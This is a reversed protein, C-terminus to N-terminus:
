HARKLLALAYDGVEVASESLVSEGTALEVAWSGPPLRFPMNQAGGNMVLYLTSELGDILVALSRAYGAQWDAETMEAGAPTYWVLERDAPFSLGRLVQHQKRFRALHQVFSVLDWDMTEWDHWSVENDQCYANNNGGQTRGLEDGGLLMPVGRSLFIIALMNRARRRRMTIIQPDTTPGEAGSNWSRNHTEGDHNHEGNAQNHKNNFSVLDAMTFGDHSTIFNISALPGKRQYLDPSGIFRSAANAIVGSTGRWFERFDDRFRGNWEAWGAPFAGTQYGAPGLDWPEAILKVGRLVPDQHMALFFPANPTFDLPARGLSPALDFRFGDVHMEEVWYRLSDMVVQLTWPSTLDVTNGTGTWDLYRRRDEPDLRYFGPNDLGRFCLTAGQHNGEGTHNYVVDLIVEIGQEHLIRVMNKFEGVSDSTAAYRANPAFFGISSYGWYNTLGHRQLWPEPFSSHVPLLEVATVGLARLHEIVPETALGAYTGRLEPAVAPHRMTLGRVHTEYIVTDALPVRPPRDGAWDFSNDIVISRPVFNANDREDPRDEARPRHIGLSPNAILEGHVARAYPDLLLKYPNSFIGAAPEWRGHIRYGYSQGPQIGQVLGHHIEGTRGPLVLRTESAGEFLCLEVTEAHPAHVAFNFSSGIPAVGLRASDGPLIM